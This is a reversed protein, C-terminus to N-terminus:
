GWDWWHNGVIWRHTPADQTSDIEELDMHMWKYRLQRLRARAKGDRPTGRDRLTRPRGRGKPWMGVAWGPYSVYLHCEGRGNWQCLFQYVRKGLRTEIGKIRELHVDCVGNRHDHFEQKWWSPNTEDALQVWVPRHKDTHSM